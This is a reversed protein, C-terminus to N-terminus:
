SSVDPQGRKAQASQVSRALGAMRKRETPDFDQAAATARLRALQGTIAQHQDPHAARWAVEALLEFLRRLVFPDSAGYRRPQTIAVDLMDAFGPRNLVVRLQAHDDYLLRPGLDKDALECLLASCHGLAHVATTPDNIGPSLAKNTVDALQRLGYGIDQVATREFGVALAGPAHQALRTILKPDGPNVRPWVAGIPTGSIVSRGPWCEVLIIADADGAASLLTQEDIQVLFGSAAALMVVAGPPPTPPTESEADSERARLVRKVTDSADHHVNRLMTEVRIQQALHALFFVLGLVSLVCLVFAVTVSLQPVFVPQGGRADRVTRLVALAYTFTGLLLALTVHVFRDRTFTRLLRPSFQSSALQLTVVTLSFTLATVTILSGAITGLFTRAASPGGGFLYAATAASFGHDVHGDLRPLGVGLGVGVIIGLTPLPWLQTRM